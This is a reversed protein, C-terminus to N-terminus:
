NFLEDGLNKCVSEIVQIIELFQDETGNEGLVAKVAKSFGKLKFGIVNRGSDDTILTLFDDVRDYVCLADEKVYEVCDSDSFYVAVPVYTGALSGIEGKLLEQMTM